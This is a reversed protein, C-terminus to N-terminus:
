EFLVFVVYVSEGNDVILMGVVEGSEVFFIVLDDVNLVLVLIEDDGM